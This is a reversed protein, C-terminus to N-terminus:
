SEAFIMSLVFWVIALPILAHAAVALGGVLLIVIWLPALFIGLAMRLTWGVIQCTLRIAWGIAPLVVFGFLALVALTAM